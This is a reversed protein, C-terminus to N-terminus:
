HVCSHPSYWEMMNKLTRDTDGAAYATQNRVVCAKWADCGEEM